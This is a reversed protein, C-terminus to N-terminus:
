WTIRLITSDIIWWEPQSDDAIRRLERLKREEHAAILDIFWPLWFGLSIIVLGSPLALSWDIDLSDTAVFFVAYGLLLSMLLRSLVWTAMLKSATARLRLAREEIDQEDRVFSRFASGIGKADARQLMEYRLADVIRQLLRTMQSNADRVKEDYLSNEMSFYYNLTECFTLPASPRPSIVQSAETAM